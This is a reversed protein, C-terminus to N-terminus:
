STQRVGDGQSGTRPGREVPSIGAPQLRSEMGGQGYWLLKYLNGSTDRERRPPYQGDADSADMTLALNVQRESNLCKIQNGKRKAGTLAPFLLSALITIIAIVVLLEM